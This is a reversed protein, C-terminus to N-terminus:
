LISMNLIINTHQTVAQEQIQFRNIQFNNNKYIYSLIGNTVCNCYCGWSCFIEGAIEPHKSFSYCQENGWETEWLSLTCINLFSNRLTVVFFFFNVQWSRIGLTFATYECHLADLLCWISSKFKNVCRFAISKKVAQGTSFFLFILKGSFLGFYYMLMVKSLLSLPM